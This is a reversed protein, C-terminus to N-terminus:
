RKRSRRPPRPRTAELLATTTGAYARAAAGLAQEAASIEDAPKGASVANTLGFAAEVLTRWAAAARAQLEEVNAPVVPDGREDAGGM